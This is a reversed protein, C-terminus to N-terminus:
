ITYAVSDINWAAETTWLSVRLFVWQGPFLRTLSAPAYREWGGTLVNNVRQPRQTRGINDITLVAPHLNDQSRQFQSVLLQGRRNKWKLAEGSTPFLKRRVLCQALLNYTMVTFQVAKVNRGLTRKTATSGGVFDSGAHEVQLWDRKIFSTKFGHENLLPAAADSALLEKQERKQQRLRRKEDITAQDVNRAISRDLQNNTTHRHEVGNDPSM